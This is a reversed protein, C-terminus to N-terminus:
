NKSTQLTKQFCLPFLLFQEYRAIEGKGVTNETGKSFKERSEGFKFNDDAFEKTQCHRFKTMQLLALLPQYVSPWLRKRYEQDVSYILNLFCLVHSQIWAMSQTLDKKYSLFNNGPRLLKYKCGDFPAM